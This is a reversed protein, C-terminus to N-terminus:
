GFAVTGTDTGEALRAAGAAHVQHRSEFLKWKAPVADRTWAQQLRYARICRSSVWPCRPPPDPRTSLKASHPACLSQPQVTKPASIVSGPTLLPKADCEGSALSGPCALMRLQISHAAPLSCLMPTTCLSPGPLATIEQIHTKLACCSIRM